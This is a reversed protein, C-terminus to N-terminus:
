RQYLKKIKTNSDPMISYEKSLLDSNLLQRVLGSKVFEERLRVPLKRNKYSISDLSIPHFSLIGDSGPVFGYWDRGIHFENVHSSTSEHCRFCSEPENGIFTADYKPPIISFGNGKLSPALSQGKWYEGVANKFKTKTLLDHVLDDPMDPLYDIYGEGSFGPEPHDSVLKSKFPSSNKIKNILDSIKSDKLFNPRLEKIKEILNEHNPFPRYIGVDWYSEMRFRLRVEYIYKGKPGDLALAELFVTGIPYTWGYGISKRHSPYDRNYGNRRFMDKDFFLIPKDEPLLMVRVVSTSAETGAANKWPFEVGGNGGNGHGKAKEIPGGSINYDVAYFSLRLDNANGANHQYAQPVEEKTYWVSRSNNIIGEVVDDEFEPFYQKYKVINEQTMVQGSVINTFFLVFLLTLIRM